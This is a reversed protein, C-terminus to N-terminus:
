SRLNKADFLTEDQDSFLKRTSFGGGTSLRCLTDSTRLPLASLNDFALVHGNNAAIFFDREDGPLARLPATNPDVLARLVRTFTSKGSGQEGRLVLIPYPARDRLAALVWAVAIVFDDDSQVNLFSRLAEISGGKAPVPLPRMGPKREFRVPPTHVLRWGNPDVEVARWEKDCLDIYIKGDLGAVRVHVHREPGDFQAQAELQQLARNLKGSSLAEGRNKYFWHRLFNRFSASRIQWTERHGNISVDAYASGNPTHFLTADQEDFLIKPLPPM